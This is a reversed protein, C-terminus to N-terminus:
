NSKIIKLFLKKIFSKKNFQFKNIFLFIKRFLFNKQNSIFIKFYDSKKMLFKESIIRGDARVRSAKIDLLSTKAQSQFISYFLLYESNLSNQTNRLCNNIQNIRNSYIYSSYDSTCIAFRDNFGRHFQWNPIAIHDKSKNLFDQINKEFSDWYYLDPRAFITLDSNNQKSIEYVKKLSFLQHILNRISKYDDRFIDGYKMIENLSYNDFILNPEESILKDANLLNWNNKIKIENEQSRSNKIVKLDYFHCFIKVEALKRAPYILNKQISPFTKELDRTIGFFCISIKKRM